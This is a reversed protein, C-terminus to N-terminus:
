ALAAQLDGLVAPLDQELDDWTFRLSLWGALSTARDRRRDRRM